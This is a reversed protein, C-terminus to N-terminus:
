FLYTCGVGDVLTRHGYVRDLLTIGSNAMDKRPNKECEALWCKHAAKKSSLEGVMRVFGGVLTEYRVEFRKTKM